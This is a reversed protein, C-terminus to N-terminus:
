ILLEKPLKVTFVSGQNPSSDASITGSHREAIKRCIALGLGTGPYVSSRNHLREFPKFIREKLDEEFGIGNDKVSIELYDDKAEANIKLNPTTGAEQYMLANRILHTLLQTMFTKNANVKPLNNTQFDIDPVQMSTGLNTKLENVLLNLDIPEPNLELTNTRSYDLLDSLLVQMRITANHIIDLYQMGKDDIVSAYKSKLKDSFAKVKRLPENLDHSAVYTFAGFEEKVKTLEQILDDVNIDNATLSNLQILKAIADKNLIYKNYVTTLCRSLNVQNLESKQLYDVAGLKMFEIAVEEDGMGTLVIVPTSIIPQHQPNIMKMFELGTLKPMSFDLFVLDPKKSKYLEFGTLVNDAEIFEYNINLRSVGIFLKYLDRDTESDDILLIRLTKEM